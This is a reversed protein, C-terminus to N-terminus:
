HRCTHQAHILRAAAVLTTHSFSLILSSALPLLCSRRCSARCTRSSSALLVSRLLLLLTLSIASHEQQLLEGIVPGTITSDGNAASAGGFLFAFALVLGMLLMLASALGRGGKRSLKTHHRRM